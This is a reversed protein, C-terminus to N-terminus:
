PSYHSLMGYVGTILMCLMFTKMSIINHFYYATQTSVFSRKSAGLSSTTQLFSQDTTEDKFNM